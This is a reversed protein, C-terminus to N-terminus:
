STRRTDRQWIVEVDCPQPDQLDNLATVFHSTAGSDPLFDKFGTITAFRPCAPRANWRSPADSVAMM